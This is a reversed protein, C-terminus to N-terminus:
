LSPITVNSADLAYGQLIRLVVGNDRLEGLARSFALNLSCDELRFGHRAYGYDNIIVDPM